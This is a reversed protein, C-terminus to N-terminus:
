SIVPDQYSGETCSRVEPWSQEDDDGIVCLPKGGRMVHNNGRATTRCIRIKSKARCKVLQDPEVTKPSLIILGYTIVGYAYLGVVLQDFQLRQSLQLTGRV